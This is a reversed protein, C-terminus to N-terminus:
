ALTSGFTREEQPYKRLRSVIERGLDTLQLTSKDINILGIRRLEAITELSHEEPIAVGILHATYSKGEDALRLVTELAGKHRVLVHAIQRYEIKPDDVEIPVEIVDGFRETDKHLPPNVNSTLEGRLTVINRYAVSAMWESLDDLFPGPEIPSPALRGSDAYLQQEIIRLPGSVDQQLKAQFNHRSMPSDASSGDSRTPSHSVDLQFDLQSIGYKSYEASVFHQFGTIIGATEPLEAYEGNHNVIINIRKAPITGRAFEFSVPILSHGDAPWIETTLHCNRHYGRQATEPSLPLQVTRVLLNRNRITPEDAAILIGFVGEVTKGENSSGEAFTRTYPIGFYITDRPRYSSPLDAFFRTEHLLRSIARLIVERNDDLVNHVIWSAFREYVIRFGEVFDPQRM